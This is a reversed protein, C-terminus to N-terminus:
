LSCSNGLSGSKFVLRSIRGLGKRGSSVVIFINAWMEREREKMVSRPAEGSHSAQLGTNERLSHTFYLRCVKWTQREADVKAYKM